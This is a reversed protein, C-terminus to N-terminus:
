GAAEGDGEGRRLDELVANIRAAHELGRDLEFHLEPTIRTALEGAVKRRLFGAASKLGEVAKERETDDGQAMVFVTAHSLDGSVEVRTLTVFGIRPDRVERTLTEAVVQRIIEGVQEPRRRSTGRAM